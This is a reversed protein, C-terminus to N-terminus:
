IVGTLKKEFEMEFWTWGYKGTPEINTAVVGIAYGSKHLSRKYQTIELFIHNKNLIKALVEFYNIQDTHDDDYNKFRQSSIIFRRAMKSGIHLQINGATSIEKEITFFPNISYVGIEKSIVDPKSNITTILAEGDSDLDISYNTGYLKIKYPENAM